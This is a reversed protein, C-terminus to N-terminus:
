RRGTLFDVLFCGRVHLGASRLHDLVAGDAGAEELADALVGLRAPDLEGSPLLRERYASEALACVDPTLWDPSLAAPAFPNDFLDRLLAVQRSLNARRPQDDLGRAAHGPARLLPRLRQALIASAARAAHRAGPASPRAQSLAESAALREPRGALGEALLEAVEVARRCPGEPLAEWAHRCCAAAYLRAKRHSIKGRLLALMPQPDTCTPWHVRSPRAPPRLGPGVVPGQSTASIMGLGAALVQAFYAEASLCGPGGDGAPVGTGEGFLVHEGPRGVLDAADVVLVTFEGGGANESADSM